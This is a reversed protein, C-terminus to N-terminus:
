REQFRGFHNKAQCRIISTQNPETRPELAMLHIIKSGIGTPITCTLNM